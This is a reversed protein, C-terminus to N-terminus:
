RQRRRCEDLDRKMRIVHPDRDEPTKMAEWTLEDPSFEIPPPGLTCQEDNPHEECYVAVM